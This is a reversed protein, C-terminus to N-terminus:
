RATSTRRATVAREISAVRRREARLEELTPQWWGRDIERLTPPSKAPWAKVLERLSPSQWSGWVLAGDQAVVNSYHRDRVSDDVLEGTVETFIIARYPETMVIRELPPTEEAPVPYRHKGREQRRARETDLDINDRACQRKQREEPEMYRAAAEIKPWRDRLVEFSRFPVRWAKVKRDWWAWPIDRVQELVRRSYPTRIVFDEGVSLYPSEIPEFLFSDRGKEDAYIVSGQLERAVWRNLRKEATTGPVFWAGLSDRWRARPFAMRFREVTMRDYPFVITAGAAEGDAAHIEPAIDTHSTMPSM